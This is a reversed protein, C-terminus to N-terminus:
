RQVRGDRRLKAAVEPAAPCAEVASTGYYAFPHASDDPWTKLMEAIGAPPSKYWFTYGLTESESKYLCAITQQKADVLGKLQNMALEYHRNNQSPFTGFISGQSVILVIRAEAPAAAKILGPNVLLYSGLFDTILEDVSERFEKSTVSQGIGYTSRSWTPAQAFAGPAGSALPLAQVFQLSISYVFYRAPDTLFANINLALRPYGTDQITIGRDRLRAELGTRFSDASLHRGTVNVSLALSAHGKLTEDEGVIVRRTAPQLKTTARAFVMGPATGALSAIVFVVITGRAIPDDALVRMVRNM